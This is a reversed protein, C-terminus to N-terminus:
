KKIIKRTIQQTGIDIKLVYVGTSLETGFSDKGNWNYMWYGNVNQETINFVPNGLMDYININLNTPKNLYIGITTIENFPNPYISLSSAYDNDGVSSPGPDNASLIELDDVLAEFFIGFGISTNNAIFKLQFKDTGHAENPIPVVVKNWDFGGDSIKYISTWEESDGYKMEVQFYPEESYQAQAFAIGAFWKFFRLVPREILSIDYAPSIFTTKGPGLMHQFFYNSVTPDTCFCKSGEESHDEGPQLLYTGGLNVAIPKAIQWIGNVATDDEDGITWGGQEEFNDYIFDYYGALFLYPESDKAQPLRVFEETYNDKAKIYYQIISAQQQPPINTYYKNVEYENAEMEIETDWNDISYVVKVTEPKSNPFDPVNIEFDVRFDQDYVKTDTLPEHVFSSSLLLSTGIQHNNFATVIEHFHPTGNTLDADDDDAIITEMFWEAFAVGVNPDDPVGYRAYHSIHSVYDNSTLERLDWFAGGLIQGDHHSEGEIDDPYVLENKVDRIFFNPRTIDCGLGLRHDDLIMCATIDALAEHTTFNQMGEPVGLDMYMRFNIAHGYEHYLIGPTEAFVMNEDKVNWFSLTDGTMNSSANTGMQYNWLLQVAVPFDMATMNPDIAKIWSHVRNTHFYVNREFSHSNSDDWNVIFDEGPELTDKFSANQRDTFYAKCYEGEFKATIESRETIEVNLDGNGDTTYEEGNIYIHQYPFFIDMAEDQPQRMKIKGQSKVSQGANMTMNKRFVVDGTHADVYNIYDGFPNESKFKVDYVLRYEVKDAFEIPLIYSKGANDNSLMSVRVKSKKEFDAMSNEVATNYAISPTPNIEIGNYYSVGFAFVKADESIRLEVESYLVIKGQYVQRFSVYWKGNVNSARIFKLDNVNMNFTKSNYSLFASAADQVNDNTINSYGNIQIPKGFARHPTKTANDILVTWNGNHIGFDHWEKAFTTQNPSVFNTNVDIQNPLLIEYQMSNNSNYALVTSFLFSLSITILIIHKMIKGEQLEEFFTDNM